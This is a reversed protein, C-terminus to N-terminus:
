LHTSDMAHISDEKGQFDRGGTEEPWSFVHSRIIFVFNSFQAGAAHSIIPNERQSLYVQWLSAFVSVFMTFPLIPINRSGLWSILWDRLIFDSSHKIVIKFQPLLGHQGSVLKLGGEYRSEYIKLALLLCPSPRLQTPSFVSASLLKADNQHSLILAPMRSDQGWVEGPPNNWFNQKFM